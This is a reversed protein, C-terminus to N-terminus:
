NNNQNFKFVVIRQCIDSPDNKNVVNMIDRLAAKAHEKSPYKGCESEKTWEGAENVAVWFLFAVREQIIYDAFGNYRIRRQIRFHTRM